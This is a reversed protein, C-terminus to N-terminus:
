APIPTATISFGIISSIFNLVPTILQGLPDPLPILIPDNNSDFFFPAAEGGALLSIFLLAVENWM